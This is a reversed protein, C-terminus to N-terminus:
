WVLPLLRYRVQEAYENYGALEECLVRDELNTRVVLLLAGLIGFISAWVSGLMLPTAATLLIGGTYGPHRVVKYPGTTIVTQGRDTQIRVVQAFYKNEAMAWLHLSWGLLYTLLAFLMIGLSVHPRWGLRLDLAAVLPVVFGTLTGYLRFLVRDWPKQNEHRRKSREALLGPDVVIGSVFGYLLLSALYVWAMIWGLRGAVSFMLVGLIVAGLITRAMWRAIVRRSDLQMEPNAAGAEDRHARNMEESNM